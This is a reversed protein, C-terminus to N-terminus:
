IKKKMTWFINNYEDVRNTRDLKSYISRLISLCIAHNSPLLNVNDHWVLNVFVQKDRIEIGNKFEDIKMQDYNSVCDPDENIGLSEISLMNDIRREVLSDDFFSEFPDDYTRKPNVVFNTITKRCEKVNFIITKDFLAIFMAKFHITKHGNSFLAKGLDKRKKGM